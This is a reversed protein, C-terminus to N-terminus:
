RPRQSGGATSRVHREPANAWHAGPHVYAQARPPAAHAPEDGWGTDPRWFAYVLGAYLYLTPAAFAVVLVETHSRCLTLLLLVFFFTTAVSPRVIYQRMAALVAVAFSAILVAMGILGTDVAFQRYTNHFNFVRGDRQGFMQLLGQTDTSGSLWISQFGYGLLPRRAILDDAYAWLVDRGTLGPDRHLVNVLFDNMLRTIEPTLAVLPSAIIVLAAMVGIRGGPPLRHLACLGVFLPVSLASLVVATASGTVMVIYGGLAAGFPSLLRVTRHQNGDLLVGLATFLLVYGIYSMQNKSGLLGILVAGESAFGQRGSAVSLACFCLAMLFFVCLFRSPTMTRALFVGAFATLLLQFGYRASISPYDSWFFSISALLPALLLPWWRIVTASLEVRRVVMLLVVVGLWALTTLKGISPLRNTICLLLVFAAIATLQELPWIRRAAPHRIPYPLDTM